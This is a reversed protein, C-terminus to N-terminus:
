ILGPLQGTGHPKITLTLRAQFGVRQNIQNLTTPHVCGAHINELEGRNQMEVWEWPQLPWGNRSFTEGYKPFPMQCIGCLPKYPLEEVYAYPPIQGSVLKVQHCPANPCPVYPRGQKTWCVAPDSEWGPTVPVGDPIGKWPKYKKGWGVRKAQGWFGRRRGGRGM